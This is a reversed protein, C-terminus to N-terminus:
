LNGRGTQAKLLLAVAILLLLWGGLKPAVDLLIALLAIGVLVLTIEQAGTAQPTQLATSPNTM